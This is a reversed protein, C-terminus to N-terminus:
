PLKRLPDPLWLRGKNLRYEQLWQHLDREGKLYVGMMEFQSRTSKRFEKFGAASVILAANWGYKARELDMAGHVENVVDVGIRNRHRKVEVFYRLSIGVANAREVAFIDASTHSDWSVWRVDSFGRQKLFEAVLHEFVRPNVKRLDREHSQLYIILEPTLTRITEVVEQLDAATPESEPPKSVQDLLARLRRSRSPHRLKRLAKAQIQYIRSATVAFHHGVEWATRKEGSQDLGFRMKIIREERPTLTKLVDEVLDRLEALVEATEFVEEPHKRVAEEDGLAHPRLISNMLEKHPM